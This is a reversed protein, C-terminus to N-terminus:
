FLFCKNLLLDSLCLVNSIANAWHWRSTGQSTKKKVNYSLTPLWSFATLALNQFAKWTVRLFCRMHWLVDYVGVYLFQETCDLTKVFRIQCYPEWSSHSPTPLPLLHPLSGTKSPLRSPPDVQSVNQPFCSLSVVSASYRPFALVNRFEKMSEIKICLFPTSSLALKFPFTM